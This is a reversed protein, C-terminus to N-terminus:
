SSRSIAAAQRRRSAAVLTAYVDEVLAIAADVDGDTHAALAEIVLERRRARQEEERGEDIVGLGARSKAAAAQDALRLREVIARVLVEDVVNFSARVESLSPGEDVPAPPSM